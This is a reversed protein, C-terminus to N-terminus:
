PPIPAGQCGQARILGRASGASGHLEFELRQLRADRSVFATASSPPDDSLAIYHLPAHWAAPGSPAIALHMTKYTKFGPLFVAAGEGGRPLYRVFYFATAFPTRLKGDAEAGTLDLDARRQPPAAEFDKLWPQGFAEPPWYQAFAPFKKVFEGARKGEVRHAILGKAAREFRDWQQRVIHPGVAYRTNAALDTLLGHRWVSREEVLYSIPVVMFEVATLKVVVDVTTADASQDVKTIVGIKANYDATGAYRCTETARSPIPALM